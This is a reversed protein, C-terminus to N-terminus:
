KINEEPYANLIAKKLDDEDGVLIYPNDYSGCTVCAGRYPTHDDCRPVSIIHKSAEELAAKVHLKAFEKLMVDVEHSGYLPMYDKSHRFEEATPIKSM